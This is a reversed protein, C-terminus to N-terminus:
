GSTVEARARGSRPCRSGSNRASSSSVQSRSRRTKSVALASVKGTLPVPDAPMSAANTLKTRGPSTTTTPTFPRNPSRMHSTAPRRPASTTRTSAGHPSGRSGPGSGRPAGTAPWSRGRGRRSRSRHACRRRAARAPVLAVGQEEDVHDGRETADLDVDVVPADVDGVAPRLLAEPHRRAQRRQRHRGPASRAAARAARGAPVEVEAQHRAVHLRIPPPRTYWWVAGTEM